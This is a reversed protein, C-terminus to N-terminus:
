WYQETDFFTMCTPAILPPVLVFVYSNIIMYIYMYTNMHTYGYINLTSKGWLLWHKIQNFYPVWDWFEYKASEPQLSTYISNRDGHPQIRLIDWIYPQMTILFPWLYITNSTLINLIWSIEHSVKYSRTNNHQPFCKNDVMIEHSLCLCHGINLHEAWTEMIHHYYYLFIVEIVLSTMLCCIILKKRNDDNDSM